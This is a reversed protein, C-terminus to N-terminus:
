SFVFGQKIGGPKLKNEFYIEVRHREEQINTDNQQSKIKWIKYKILHGVLDM